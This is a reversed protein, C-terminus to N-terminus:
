IGMLTNIIKKQGNFSFPEYASTDDIFKKWPVSGFDDKESDLCAIGLERLGAINWEQNDAVRVAVMPVGCSMLEYITQGAATIAIDVGLMLDRMESAKLSDYLVTNDDSALEIERMNSFGAGIVVHKKSEPIEKSVTKLIIPTLNAIDAGGMTILINKREGTCKIPIINQFEPRVIVYEFGGLYRVDAQKKYPLRDGYLSPNVVIGKPYDLRMYDDIYLAASCNLAIVKYIDIDALYSDVVVNDFKKLLPMLVSMELWDAVIINRSIEPLENMTNVVLQTDYGSAISEDYLTCCRSLHGFGQISGAETFIAISKFRNTRM